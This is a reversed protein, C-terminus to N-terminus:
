IGDVSHQKEKNAETLLRATGKKQQSKTFALDIPQNIIDVLPTQITYGAGGRGPFSSIRHM